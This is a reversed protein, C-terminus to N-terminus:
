NENIRFQYKLYGYRGNSYNIIIKKNIIIISLEPSFYVGVDENESYFCDLNKISERYFKKDNNFLFIIG